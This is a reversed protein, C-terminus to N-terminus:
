PAEVPEWAYVSDPMFPVDTDSPRAGAATLMAHVQGRHHTGHNFLQIVLVWRPRTVDAEIAGSYWSLGGALDGETVAGAWAQMAADTKERDARLANWQVHQGISGPIDAAVPPPTGALRHLWLQDGWLLHNLTEHISGFFAGRNERRERDTLTDAADYLNRNQWGTYAAM